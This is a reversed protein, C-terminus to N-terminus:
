ENPKKKLFIDPNVIRTVKFKKLVLLDKDGTILYDARGALCLDLVQNDKQDHCIHVKRPPIIKISKNKFEDITKERENHEVGYDELFSAVEALIFPSILLIFLNKRWDKIIIGPKGGWLIASILVNSDIVVRQKISLSM